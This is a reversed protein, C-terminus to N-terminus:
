QERSGAYLRPVLPGQKGVCLRCGLGPGPQAVLWGAVLPGSRWAQPQSPAHGPHRLQACRFPGHGCAPRLGWREPHHECRCVARGQRFHCAGFWVERLYQRDGLLAGWRSCQLHPGAPPEAANRSGVGPARASRWPWVRIFTGLGHVDWVSPDLEGALYAKEFQLYHQVVHQYHKEVAEAMAAEPVAVEPVKVSRWKEDGAEKAKEQAEKTAKRKADTKLKGIEGARGGAQNLGASLALRRLVGDNAKVSEKQIRKYILMAEGYEAPGGRGTASAGDAMLMEKMLKDDALLQKLLAAHEKGQAEFAALGEPTATQLLVYNVLKSDLKDSALFNILKKEEASGPTKAKELDFKAAQATLEARLKDLVKTYQAVRAESPEAASAVTSHGAMCFVVAALTLTFGRVTKMKRKRNM